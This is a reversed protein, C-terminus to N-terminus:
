LMVWACYLNDVIITLAVLALTLTILLKNSM